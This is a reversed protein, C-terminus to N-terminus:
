GEGDRLYTNIGTTVFESRQSLHGQSGHFGAGARAVVPGVVIIAPSAFPSGDGALGSLDTVAVQQETRGAMHVIAVPEDVPRGAAMLREAIDDATSVGMLVVLTSASRALPEWEHDHDAIRHGSLVTFSASQGRHTLPIGALTAGAVASTLGPVVEVPIGAETMAEVEEAGRGFVFPDGGKLRVVNFGRTAKEVLVRNIEEQSWGGGKSKGVPIREAVVPALDLLGPDVLRDHVVVDAQGLLRAGKLTILEAGGPGAGVLAVTGVRVTTRGDFGVLFRRRLEPLAHTRGARVAALGPELLRQRWVQYDYRYRGTARLTTRASAAQDVLEGVSPPLAREIEERLFRATAPSGGNTSIAVATSGRRVVSPFIVDCRIPDDVVNVVAGLVKAWRRVRINVKRDGTAAIVLRAGVVDRRRVRRTALRVVGTEALDVIRPTPEPGIVHIDAGTRRLVEVKGEAIQGAGVVLVRVGDLKWALMLPPNM